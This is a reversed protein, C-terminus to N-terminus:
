PEVLHLEVVYSGSPTTHESVVSFTIALEGGEDGADVSFRGAKLSLFGPLQIEFSSGSVVLECPKGLHGLLVAAAAAEQESNIIM